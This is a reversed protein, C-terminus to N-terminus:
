NEDDKGEQEEIKQKLYSLDLRNEAISNENEHLIARIRENVSRVEKEFEHSSILHAGEGLIITQELGDSTM